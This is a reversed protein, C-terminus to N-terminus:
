SIANKLYDESIKRKDQLIREFVEWNISQIADVEEIPMDDDILRSEISFSNQLDMLRMMQANGIKPFLFFQRHYLCSFITCHFSDTFVCKAYRILNIFDAPSADWYKIDGFKFDYLVKYEPDLFPITVIKLGKVKAYKNIWKRQAKTGKLLYVFVYDGEILRKESLSDWVSRNILLTPDLVTVCRDDGLTANILKTGSEERCSIANFSSLSNKIVEADDNSFSEVGVSPAYAIKLKGKEVFNLWYIDNVSVLKPNWIQDSGCIFGDYAKNAESITDQSYRTQSVKLNEDVFKQLNATRRRLGKFFVKWFALKLTRILGVKKLKDKFNSVSVIKEGYQCIIEYEANEFSDIKTQLAYAQLISGYNNRWWTLCGFKIKKDPM